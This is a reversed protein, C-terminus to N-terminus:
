PVNIIGGGVSRHLKCIVNNSDSTHKRAKLLLFFAGHTKFTTFYVFIIKKKQQPRNRISFTSQACVSQEVPNKKCITENSHM